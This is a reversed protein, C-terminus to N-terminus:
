KLNKLPIWGSQGSETTAWVWEGAEEESLELIEGKQVTLERANYNQIVLFWGEKERLAQLYILPVWGKVGTSSTCWVWGEWETKKLTGEIQDGKVLEIPVPFESEHQKIVQAKM